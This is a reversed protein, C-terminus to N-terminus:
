WLYHTLQGSLQYGINVVVVIPVLMWAMILVFEFAIYVFTALSVVILQVVRVCFSIGRSAWDNYGYMPVFLYHTLVNLNWSHAFARIHDRVKRLLTLLGGTYWWVLLM